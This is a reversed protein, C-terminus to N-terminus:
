RWRAYLPEQARARGHRQDVRKPRSQKPYGGASQTINARQRRPLAAHRRQATRRASRPVPADGLPAPPDGRLGHRGERLRDFLHAATGHPADVRSPQEAHPLWRFMTHGMFFRLSVIRLAQIEEKATELERSMTARKEVEEALLDESEQANQMHKELHRRLADVLVGLGSERSFLPVDFRQVLARLGDAAVAIQDKAQAVLDEREQEWRSRENEMGDTLQAWRAEEQEFRAREMEWTAKETAWAETEAEAETRVREAEGTANSLEHELARMREKLRVTDDNGRASSELELELLALRSELENARRRERELAVHEQKLESEAAARADALDAAAAAAARGEQFEAEATARADELEVERQRTRAESADLRAQLEELDKRQAGRKSPVVAGEHGAFLHAGDFKHTLVGPSGASSTPSLPGEGNDHEEDAQTREAAALAM